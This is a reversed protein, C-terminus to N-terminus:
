ADKGFEKNQVRLNEQIYQEILECQEDSIQCDALILEAFSFDELRKGAKLFEEKSMDSYFFEQSTEDENVIFFVRNGKLQEGKLFRSWQQFSIGKVSHTGDVSNKLSQPLRNKKDFEFTNGQRPQWQILHNQPGILSLGWSADLWLGVSSLDFLRDNDAINFTQTDTAGLNANSPVGLTLIVTETGEVTSDDQILFSSLGFVQGSVINMTGDSLNHDVPNTATGSVTFPVSVPLYTPNTLTVIAFATGAAESVNKTAADFNLTPIPDDNQLTLSHSSAAGLVGGTPSGLNLQIEENLEYMEDGLVSYEISASNQGVPIVLPSPTSVTFDTGQSATGSFSFPISANVETNGTLNIVVSQTVSGSDGETLSLDSTTINIEPIPDNNQLTVTHVTNGALTANTPTGLNLIVTENNEYNSDDTILFSVTGTTSGAPITINGAGLDHDVGFTATGSVSFPVVVSRGSVAGLQASINVTGVGESVTQSISQFQVTPLPDNDQITITQTSTSGLNANTPAGMNVQIIENDEDFNDNVINFSIMGSTQGALIVLDQSILNHDAPNQASGSVVLPITVDLSYTKSLNVTIAGSGVSEALSQNPASFNATPLNDNDIIDLTFTTQNGLTLGEPEGFSIILDRNANISLDDIVNIQFSIATDGPSVSVQDPASFHTDKVASGSFVLPINAPGPAPYELQIGVTVVGVGESVQESSTTFDILPSRDVDEIEITHELVNGLSAGESSTLTITLTKNDEFVRHHLVPVEFDFRKQGPPFIIVGEKFRHHVGYLATGSLTYSIAVERNNNANSTYSDIPGVQNNRTLSVAVKAIGASELVKQSSSLFSVSVTKSCAFLHPLLILIVLFKM